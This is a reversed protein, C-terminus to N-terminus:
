NCDSLKIHPHRHQYVSISFKVKIYEDWVNDNATGMQQSKDWKFEGHDVLAKMENHQKRGDKHRNKLIDM